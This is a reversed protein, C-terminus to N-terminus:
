KEQGNHHFVFVRAHELYEDVISIAKIPKKFKPHETYMCCIGRIILQIEVGARAAERLQEILAEDSLSNMKLIISAPKGAKANKIERSILKTLEKRLGVPCPLITKCTRLIHEADKGQELYNFIRNVDAMVHRDSTLLCHDGYLLATKENLNGTSVFGYHVTHNNIRKKIMCLKAHVKMHPIGILVKVGEEELRKKWELNAEEEFRAQLELMVTVSKGNRVANVLANMVKSNEALRYATIKIATVDPDIAAERLLDIVPKFSHYPFSLLIDQQLMLDTVRLSKKLFQPLFPKKRQGKRKFVDPFEMFHRFNHIRGGPILTDKKSLSMKRVLYELLGNDMDKEYVFRVTKGKRRNKVGKEIKEMLNTSVDNDLNIEADKTVKFIWSQYSDFGFYSFISKLNFRIVDELLIIHHEGEPSPLLVF